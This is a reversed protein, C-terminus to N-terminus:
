LTAEAALRSGARLQREAQTLQPEAPVAATGM